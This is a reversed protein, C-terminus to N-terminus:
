LVWTKVLWQGRDHVFNDFEGGEMMNRESGNYRSEEM